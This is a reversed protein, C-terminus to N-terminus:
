LIEVCLLWIWPEVVGRDNGSDEETEEERVEVVKCYFQFGEGHIVM